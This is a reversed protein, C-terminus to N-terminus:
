IIGKWVLLLLVLTALIMLSVATVPLRKKVTVATDTKPLLRASQLASSIHKYLLLTLTANLATKLLNFPLFMPVLLAAVQERTTNEMYLPTILYNWLLMGGTAVLAGCILGIVANKLTKNRHYIAAATCVFLCSSLINMVLGIIGTSSITVLELLAVVTAMISGAVPGFLFAGVTLLVDKPEYSLFLVVPIRVFLVAAFSLAIIMGMVTLKRLKYSQEQM